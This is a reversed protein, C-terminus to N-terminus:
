QVSHSSAWPVSCCEVHLGFGATSIEGKSRLIGSCAAVTTVEPDSICPYTHIALFAMSKQNLLASRVPSLEAPPWLDSVM